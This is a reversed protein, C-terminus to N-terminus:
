GQTLTQTQSKENALLAKVANTADDVSLSDNKHNELISKISFDLSTTENLKILLERVSKEDINKIRFSPKDWEMSLGAENRILDKFADLLVRNAKLKENSVLVDKGDVKIDFDSKTIGITQNLADTLNRTDLMFAKDKLYAESNPNFIINTDWDEIPSLTYAQTAPIIKLLKNGVEADITNTSIDKIARTANQFHKAAEDLTLKIIKGSHTTNNEKKLTDINKSNLLVSKIAKYFENQKLKEDSNQVIWSSTSKDFKGGFSKIYKHVDKNEKTLGTIVLSKTDKDTIVKLESIEKKEDKPEVSSTLGTTKFEIGGYKEIQGKGLVSEVFLLPNQADGPVKLDGKQTVTCGADMLKKHWSSNEKIGGIYTNGKSTTLSFAFKSNEAM